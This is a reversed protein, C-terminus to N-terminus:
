KGKGNFFRRVKEQVSELLTPRLSYITRNEFEAKEIQGYEAAELIQLCNLCGVARAKKEGVLSVLSSGSNLFFTKNIFKKRTVVNGCNECRQISKKFM